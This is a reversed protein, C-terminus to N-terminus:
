AILTHDNIIVEREKRKNQLSYTVALDSIARERYLGRILPHDDYTMVWHPLKGNQLM